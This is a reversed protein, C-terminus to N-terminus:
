VCRKHAQDTPGRILTPYTNKGMQKSRLISPRQILHILREKYYLPWGALSCFYTLLITKQFFPISVEMKDNPSVGFAGLVSQGPDLLFACIFFLRIVGGILGAKRRKIHSMSERIAESGVLGGYSHMVVMVTKQDREVLQELIKQVAKADDLLTLSPFSTDGADGCTPLSAYVTPYGLSELRLKLADYVVPLQFCGPVILM